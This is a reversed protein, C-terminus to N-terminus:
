SVHLAHVRGLRLLSALNPMRSALNPMRDNPPSFKRGPSVSEPRSRPPFRELCPTPPAPKAACLLAGFRCSGPLAFSHAPWPRGVAPTHHHWATPFPHLPNEHGPGKGGVDLLLVAMRKKFGEKIIWAISSVSNSIRDMWRSFSHTASGGSHSDWCFFIGPRALWFLCSIALDGRPLPMTGFIPVPVPPVSSDYSLSPITGSLVSLVVSYFRALM